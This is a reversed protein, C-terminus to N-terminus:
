KAKIKLSVGTTQLHKYINSLKKGKAKNDQTERIKERTELMWVQIEESLAIWKESVSKLKQKLSACESPQTDICKRIRASLDKEERMTDQFREFNREKLVLEMASACDSWKNLLESFDMM